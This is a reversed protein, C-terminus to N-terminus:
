RTIKVTDIKQRADSKGGEIEAQRVGVLKKKSRSSSSSAIEPRKGLRGVQSVGVLVKLEVGVQRVVRGRGVDLDAGGM